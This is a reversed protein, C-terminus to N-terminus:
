GKAEEDVLIALKLLQSSARLGARQLGQMNVEFKLKEEVIVMNIIVGKSALGPTDGVTLAHWSDVRESIKPLQEAQGPAILLVHCPTLDQPKPFLHIEIKKAGVRKKRAIERLPQELPSDGLIGIKVVEIRSEDPWDIYGIFNYVFVAKFSNLRDSDDGHAGAAFSGFLSACLLITPWRKM